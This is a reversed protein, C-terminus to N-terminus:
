RSVEVSYGIINATSFFTRKYGGDGIVVNEYIYLGQPNEEVERCGCFEIWNDKSIFVVVDYVQGYPMQNQSALGQM